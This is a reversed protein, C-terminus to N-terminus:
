SLKLLVEESLHDEFRRGWDYTTIMERYLKQAIMRVSEIDPYGIEFIYM